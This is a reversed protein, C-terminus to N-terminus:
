VKRDFFRDICNLLSPLIVLTLNLLFTICFFTIANVCIPFKLLIFSMAMCDVSLCDIRNSCSSYESENFCDQVNISIKMAVALLMRQGHQILSMMRAIKVPEVIPSTLLVGPIGAAVMAEAEQITACCIGIAGAAIQRKAIDPCKHTKAHPRFSVGARQCHDAMTKVNFEFLDLDLLLAPTPIDSKNLKAPDINSIHTNQATM